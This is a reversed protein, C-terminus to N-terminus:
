NAPDFSNKDKKNKDKSKSSTKSRKNKGEKEKKPPKYKTAHMIKAILPIQSAFGAYPNERSKPNPRIKDVDKEREGIPKEVKSDTFIVAISHNIM